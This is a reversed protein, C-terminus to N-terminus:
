FCGIHFDQYLLLLNEQWWVHQILLEVRRTQIAKFLPVENSVCRERFFLFHLKTTERTTTSAHHIASYMNNRFLITCLYQVLSHM